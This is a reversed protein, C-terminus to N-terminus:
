VALVLAIIKGRLGALGGDQGAAAVDDGGPERPLGPNNSIMQILGTIQIIVVIIAIIM